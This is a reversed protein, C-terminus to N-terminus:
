PDQSTARVTAAAGKAILMPVLHSARATDPRAAAVGAAEVAQSPRPLPVPHQPPATALATREPIPEVHQSRPPPALQRPIAASSHAAEISRAATSRSPGSRTSNPGATIPTM